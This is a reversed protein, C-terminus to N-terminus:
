ATPKTWRDTLGAAWHLPSVSCRSHSQPGSIDTACWGNEVSALHLMHRSVELIHAINIVVEELHEIWNEECESDVKTILAKEKKKGHEFWNKLPCKKIQYKCYKQIHAHYEEHEIKIERDHKVSCRLSSALSSTILCPVITEWWTLSMLWTQHRM